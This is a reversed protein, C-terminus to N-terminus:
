SPDADFGIREGVVYLPRQKVEDFIRGIYEGLVGISLLQVGGLFMVAVALTAWGPVDAGFLVTRIAIYAGYIVAALSIGFGLGGWVRLPTASFATIGTIALGLLRQRSFRTKGSLRQLPQFAVGISHFGVWAYLGKMFRTREPLARLATVVLRDLLRFDGADPIIRVGGRPSVMQYFVRTFYVKWLPEQARDSRVGYVMDYGSRWLRVFEALISLPHQGDADLLVVADGRAHDLGATLAIEKGFNRSLCLLRVAIEQGVYRSCVAVTDDTSGDDVIIIEARPSLSALVEILEPLLTTLNHSENFAPIVCTLLSLERAPAESM